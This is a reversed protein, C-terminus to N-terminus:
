SLCQRWLDGWYSIWSFPVGNNNVILPIHSAFEAQFTDSQVSCGDRIISVSYLSNDNIIISDATSGNSWLITDFSPINLEISDGCSITNDVGFKLPKYEKTVQAGQNIVSYIVGMDSLDFSSNSQIILSDGPQIPNNLTHFEQITDQNQVGFYIVLNQIPDASTNEVLIKIKKSTDENCSISSNLISKIKVDYFKNIQIDDIHIRWQDTCNYHRFALFIKNGAYASIDLTRIM